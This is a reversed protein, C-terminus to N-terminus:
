VHNTAVVDCVADENSVLNLEVDRDADGGVVAKAKRKSEAVIADPRPKIVPTIGARLRERLTGPTTLLYYAAYAPVRVMSSGSIMFGLIEGWWPYAYDNGYTIPEYKAFYFIFIFRM